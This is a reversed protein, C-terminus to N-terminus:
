QTQLSSPVDKDEGEDKQNQMPLHRFDGSEVLAIRLVEDMEGVLQISIAEMVDKPIDELDKENEYPLVITKIGVRFAALVKEKVGGIPLVKGRLTIEGTMAVDKRVAIGTVASVLATAITIGASPGDKPIAGEPIHIHIDFKRYFDRIAELAGVKKRAYSFAAQASEQMVDGLKGTLTLRGRGRLLSVEIHLIEGGFETWALGNAVGIESSAETKQKRYKPIGLYHHLEEPKIVIRIDRGDKVVQRAVKRCISAIERELNRVGAERTYNEIICRFTESPLELNLPKLGHSDVQKKLLFQEAIAVKENMTYGAIRIIEMRDQLAPPTTHLVNATLIFFVESLDYEVDLYHDVFMHNQEPDLVELLASSPDGRFDSSMKDVEDILFVPNKTGAKKMLQIIQGPFAGIYTRRHGRIEAEDRVGGLSLRVFRRGTARAISKALSTKGVGPPGVFCLISGRIKKVLQRVALYEVIREKVKELGYHDENLVQEARVIDRCERSKKFWPVSILWELYSRSVTAEASVPPMAQLRKLELIAKDEAEKPMKSARIKATLDEIENAQDDKRGLENQIARMKENLYYEKQAKEMQKRVRSQIKRDVQLKENERELLDTLKIIREVPNLTELLGQKEEISIAVHASITDTLKGLDEVNLMSLISEYPLNHNLKVYHEFLSMLKQVGSEQDKSVPCEKQIVKVVVENHSGKEQWEIIRGRVIGEVLVKINGGPLRMNQIINVVVGIAYIEEPGPNDVRANHQTALFLRKDRVLAHELANISNRRGVIFPIIMHPFVIVDRLPVIPLTEFIETKNFKQNEM